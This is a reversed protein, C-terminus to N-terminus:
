KRDKKIRDHIQLHLEEMEKITNKLAAGISNVKRRGPISQNRTKDKKATSM